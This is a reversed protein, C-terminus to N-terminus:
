FLKQAQNYVRRMDQELVIVKRSDEASLEFNKSKILRIEEQLRQFRNLLNDYLKAKEDNTLHRM